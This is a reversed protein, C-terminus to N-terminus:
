CWQHPAPSPPDAPNGVLGPRASSSASVVSPRDPHLAGCLAPRSSHLSDPSPSRSVPLHLHAVLDPRSSLLPAGTHASRAPHVPIGVFSGPPCLRRRPDPCPLHRFTSAPPAQLLLRAPTAAVVLAPFAPGHTRPGPSHRAHRASCTYPRQLLGAAGNWALSSRAPRHLPTPQLRPRTLASFAPSRSALPRLPQRSSHLPASPPRVPVSASAGAPRQRSTQLAVLLRLRVLRTAPDTSPRTGAGHADDGAAAPSRGRVSSSGSRTSAGVSRRDGRPRRQAPRALTRPQQRM